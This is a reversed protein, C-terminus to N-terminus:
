RPYIEVYPSYIWGRDTEYWLNNASNRYRAQIVVDTGYALHAHVYCNEAPGTHVAAKDKVVYALTHEKLPVYISCSAQTGIPGAQAPVGTSAVAPAAAAPALLLGALLAVFTRNM